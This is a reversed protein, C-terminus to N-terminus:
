LEDDYNRVSYKEDRYFVSEYSLPKGEQATRWPIDEHSYNEIEKVNKGSLRTLVDDIHGIERASLVGLDPHKRPLYKKQEYKFYQSKVAELEGKNQMDKIITTLEVSTPGHYNKIYTAGMLNEEFKEYYDFDIFYLLKHLVTEGFNPKSGVKGLIYLLVQKFKKLNKKTVRIQLDNSKKNAPKALTVKSKSEFCNLFNDLTIEFVAALKKAETVTLEREGHEIQMYTPRSMGLKLALYEQTMGRNNRQKKIFKRLM